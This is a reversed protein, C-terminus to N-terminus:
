RGVKKSEGKQSSAKEQLLSVGELSDTNLVRETLKALVAQRIQENDPLIDLIQQVYKEVKDENSNDVWVM